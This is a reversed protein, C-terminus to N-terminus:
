NGSILNTYPRLDTIYGRTDNLRMVGMFLWQFVVAMIIASGVVKVKERVGFALLTSIYGVVIATFYGFAWFALVFLVGCGIVLTIRKMDSDLFGYDAKLEGFKGRFARVALWFAGLVLAIALTMPMTRPGVAESSVRITLAQFIFFTGVLAVVAAVGFEVKTKYSENAM